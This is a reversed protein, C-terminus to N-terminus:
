RIVILNKININSLRNFRKCNNNVCNEKIRKFLIFWVYCGIWSFREFIEVGLLINGVGCVIIVGVM